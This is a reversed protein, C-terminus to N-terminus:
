KSEVVFTGGDREDMRSGQEQGTMGSVRGAHGSSVTSVVSGECGGTQGCNLGQGREWEGAERAFSDSVWPRLPPRTDFPDTVLANQEVGFGCRWARAADSGRVQM